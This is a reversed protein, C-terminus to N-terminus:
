ISCACYAVTCLCSVSVILGSTEGPRLVLHKRICKHLTLVYMCNNVVVCVVCVVYVVTYMDGQEIGAM